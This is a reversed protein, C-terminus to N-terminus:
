RIIRRIHRRRLPTTRLLSAPIRAARSGRHRVWRAPFLLRRAWSWIARRPPLTPSALLWRSYSTMRSPKKRSRSASWLPRWMVYSSVCMHTYYDSPVILNANRYVHDVLRVRHIKNHERQTNFNPTCNYQAIKLYMVKRIISLHGSWRIHLPVSLRYLIATANLLMRNSVNVCM